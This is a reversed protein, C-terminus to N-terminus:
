PKAPHMSIRTSQPNPRRKTRPDPKRARATYSRAGPRVPPRRRAIPASVLRSHKGTGPPFRGRGRPLQLFALSIRADSCGPSRPQICQRACRHCVVPLRGSRQAARHPVLHEPSNAPTAAVRKFVIAEVSYWSETLAELREAASLPLVSTLACLGGAAVSRYRPWRREGRRGRCRRTRGAQHGTDAVCPRVRMM